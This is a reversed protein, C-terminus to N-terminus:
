AWSPVYGSKPRERDAPRILSRDLAARIVQSVQASNRTEIGFRERLTANKMIDGSVYCLAAGPNTIELRDEFLEILPGAGTITM